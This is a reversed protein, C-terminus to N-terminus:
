LIKEIIEAPRAIVAKNGNVVIPREILKPFSVMASIIEDDSLNKGKYNDIWEKEKTRVLEIPTLQLKDILNRVEEFSINEDLYRVVKFEVSHDELYKLGARSKSCRPNHYIEIM